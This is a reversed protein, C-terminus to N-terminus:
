PKPEGPHCFLSGEYVVVKMSTHNLTSSPAALRPAAATLRVDICHASSRRGEDRPLGRERGGAQRPPQDHRRSQAPRAPLLRHLAAYRHPPQWGDNKGQIKRETLFMPGDLQVKHGVPIM